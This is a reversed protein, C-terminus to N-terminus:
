GQTENFRYLSKFLFKLTEISAKADSLENQEAYVKLKNAENIVQHTVDKSYFLRNVIKRQKMLDCLKEACNLFGIKDEGCGDILEDTAKKFNNTYICEASVIAALLSFLVIIFIINRKM